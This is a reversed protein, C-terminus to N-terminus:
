MCWAMRSWDRKSRTSSQRLRKRLFFNLVNSLIILSYHNPEVDFTTMDVVKANIDLHHKKSLSSCREVATESLDIGEVSFGKQAFFFTNRGEGIGIDLVKCAAPVLEVYQTLTSNPTLGWLLESNKYEEEWSKM